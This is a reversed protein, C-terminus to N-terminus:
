KDMMGGSRDLMPQFYVTGGYSADDEPLGLREREAAEEYQRKTAAELRHENTWMSISIANLRRDTDERIQQALSKKLSGMQSRISVPTEGEAVEVSDQALGGGVDQVSHADLGAAQPPPEDRSTADIINTIVEREFSPMNGIGMGSSPADSLGQFEGARTQAGRDLNVPGINDNITIALDGNENSLESPNTRMLAAASMRSAKAAMKANRSASMVSARVNKVDKLPAPVSGLEVPEIQFPL